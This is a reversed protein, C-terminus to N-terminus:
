CEMQTAVYTAHRVYHETKQESQFAEAKTTALEHELYGIKMMLEEKVNRLETM